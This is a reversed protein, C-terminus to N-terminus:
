QRVAGQAPCRLDSRQLRNQSSLFGSNLIVANQRLVINQASLSGGKGIYSGFLFNDLKFLEDNIPLNSERVKHTENVLRKLLSSLKQWQVEEESSSRQVALSILAFSTLDSRFTRRWKKLYLPANTSCGLLRDINPWRKPLNRVQNAVRLQGANARLRDYSRQSNAKHARIKSFRGHFKTPLGVPKIGSFKFLLYRM